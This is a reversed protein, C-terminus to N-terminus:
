PNLSCAWGSGHAFSGLCLRVESMRISRRRRNGLVRVLNVPRATRKPVFGFRQYEPHVRERDFHQGLPDCPVHIGLTRLNDATDAM